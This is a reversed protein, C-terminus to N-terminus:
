NSHLVLLGYGTTTKAGVGATKLAEILWNKARAASEKHSTNNKQRPAVAFGFVTDKEIVLFAVPIPSDDDSPLDKEQYYRPYHPNMVDTKLMPVERLVADFFVVDGTASQQGFTRQFAVVASDSIFDAFSLQRARADKPVDRDKQIKRWADQQESVSASLPHELLAELQNLPTQHYRKNRAAKRKWYRGLPLAPIGLSGSLQFLAESRALGKLASGPIIPFGYIPHLTLSTELVTHVGLGVVLPSITTMSFPDGGRDEALAHWRKYHAHLLGDDILNRQVLHIFWATRDGGRSDGYELAWTGNRQPAWPNFHDLILGLNQSRELQRQLARRTDQPLYEYAM